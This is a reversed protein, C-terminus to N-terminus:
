RAMFHFCAVRFDVPDGRVNREPEPLAVLGILAVRTIRRVQRGSGSSGESVELMGRVEPIRRAAVRADGRQLILPGVASRGCMTGLGPGSGCHQRFLGFHQHVCRVGDSWRSGNDYIRVARVSERPIASGPSRGNALQELKGCCIVRGFYRIRDGRFDVEDIITWDSCLGITLAPSRGIWGPECPRSM